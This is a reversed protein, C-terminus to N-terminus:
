RECSGNQFEGCEELIEAEQFIGNRSEEKRKGEAINLIFIVVRHIHAPHFRTGSICAHKFCCVSFFSATYNSINRSTYQSVHQDKPFNHLIETM